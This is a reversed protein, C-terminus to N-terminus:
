VTPHNRAAQIFYVSYYLIVEVYSSLVYAGIAGWIGFFYIGVFVLLIKICAHSFQIYYLQANNTQSKIASQVIFLISSPIALSLFQTYIVATVYKPLLWGIIFPAAM